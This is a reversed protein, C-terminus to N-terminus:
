DTRRSGFALQELSRPLYTTDQPLTGQTFLQQAAKAFAGYAASSLVSGLSIRRVGLATLEAVGPGGPLMLVNAPKTTATVVARIHEADVVGPAYVVDAGASAYASLRALTDDLDRVGRILNEARATLVMGSRKAAAVAEAVREVAVALPEVRREVPNWDEISCGAAGAEALLEITRTVGGPAEPFCREADVNVPLETAACIARVHGVLQERTVTGDLQGISNAFGQSTTALAQFGTAALLRAAGMDHPNPMVFTGSAHLERFRMRAAHHDPTQPEPM